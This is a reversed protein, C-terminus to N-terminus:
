NGTPRMDEAILCVEDSQRGFANTEVCQGVHGIITVVCGPVCRLFYERMTRSGDETILGVSLAETYGFAEPNLTHMMYENYSSYLRENQRNEAHYFGSVALKTENAAYIKRDLVVDKVTVHKYGRSEDDRIVQAAAAAQKQQEAQAEQAARQAEAARQESIQADANAQQCQAPTM